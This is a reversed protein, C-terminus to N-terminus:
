GKGFLLRSGTASGLFSGGLGLAGLLYDGFGAQQQNMQQQFENQREALQAYQLQLQNAAQADGQKARQLLYMLNTLGEAGTQEAGASAVALNGQQQVYPAQSQTIQNLIFSSPNLMNTSHAGAQRGVYAGMNAASQNLNRGAIDYYKQIMAPNFANQAQNMIQEYGQNATAQQRQSAWDQYSQGYKAQADPANLAGYMGPDQAYITSAWDSWTNGTPNPNAMSRATMIGKFFDQPSAM